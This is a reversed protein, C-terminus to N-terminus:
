AMRKRPDVTGKRFYLHEGVKIGEIWGLRVWINITEIGVDFESALEQATVFGTFTGNNFIVEDELDNELIYLILEKGTM